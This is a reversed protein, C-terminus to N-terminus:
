PRGYGARVCGGIKGMTPLASSFFTLVFFFAFLVPLHSGCSVEVDATSQAIFKDLLDEEAQQM